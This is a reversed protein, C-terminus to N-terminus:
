FCKLTSEAQIKQLAEVKSKAWHSDRYFIGRQGRDLQVRMVTQTKEYDEYSFRERIYDISCSCQHLSEYTNGNAAMCGLVYDAIVATPYDNIKQTEEAITSQSMLTAMTLAIVAQKLKM